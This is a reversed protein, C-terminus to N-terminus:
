PLVNSLIYSFNMEVEKKGRIVGPHGYPHGTLLYEVDLRSLKAISERLISRSGGPLDYRGTNRYFVVDGAFLAKKEKWYLSVSGPSHGPTHLVDLTVQPPKGLHLEGEKLFFHPLSDRKLEGNASKQPSGDPHVTSQLVKQFLPMELEHLAIRAASAASLSIGAQCHDPHCHTYIILGLESVRMGDKEMAGTLAKLADVEYYGTLRGSGTEFAPTAVAIHGPDIIAFFPQGEVTYKVAYTNCNNGEGQWLYSYLGPSLEM